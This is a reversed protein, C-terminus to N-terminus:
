IGPPRRVTQCANNIIVDLRDYTAIVFNLFTELSAIDRFDLGYVHLNHIWNASDKEDKFRQAADVPFRTTAIVQANCRLLKLVARYGIKTRGGTVICVKGKMDVSENRKSYNFTACDPCLQDYFFHLSRYPKKCIYCSIPVRLHSAASENDNESSKEVKEIEVKGDTLLGIMRGNDSGEDGDCIAIGDPVRPVNFGETNLSELSKVRLARLQTQNIYEEEMDKKRQENYEEIDVTGDRRRKNRNRNSNNDSKGKTDYNKNMQEIILPHLAGRLSRLQPLKFLNPNKGLITVVKVCAILEEDSFGLKMIGDEDCEINNGNFVMPDSRTVYSGGYQRPPKIIDKVISISKELKETEIDDVDSNDSDSDEALLSFHNSM